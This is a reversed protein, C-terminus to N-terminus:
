SYSNMNYFIGIAKIEKCRAPKLHCVQLRPYPQIIFLITHLIASSLLWVLDMLNKDRIVPALQTKAEEQPNHSVGRGGGVGESLSFTNRQIAGAM